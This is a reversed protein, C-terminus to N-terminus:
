SRVCREGCRLKASRARPNDRIEEQTPTIVKKNLIVMTGEEKFGRFTRKVIRDEGSHYSIVVIRGGPNLRQFAIQLAQSLNSLEDNVWIRFAQFVRHLNKKLFRRPTTKEVVKRLDFTTRLVKKHRYIESGIRRCNRVDGYNKLVDIIEQESASKIKTLLSSTKPSMRMLLEGEREFSFGREPSVLQHYSVGLDFLVGNLGSIKQEKLILGLNIFNDEFLLCRKRFPKIRERVYAIAEPDWDIGIFKARKTLKLMEVLHGGGGITCDCYVGRDTELKMFRIVEKLLVPQHFLM